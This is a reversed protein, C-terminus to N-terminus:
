GVSPGIALWGIHNSSLSTKGGRHLQGHACPRHRRCAGEPDLVAAHSFPANTLASVLHDTAHYGRIVLWDGPQGHRRLAELMRTERAERDPPPAVLIPRSCAGLLLVALTAVPIRM